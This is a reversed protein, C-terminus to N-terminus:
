SQKEPAEEFTLYYEKNPTFFSGAPLSSDINIKLEGYPTAKTFDANEGTGNDYVASLNAQKQNGYDVINICRFKARVTSM